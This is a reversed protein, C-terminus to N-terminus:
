VFEVGWECEFLGKAPLSQIGTKEELVGSTNVFDAIGYWPEICIFPGPKSWIGLFPYGKFHFKFVEGKDKHKLSIFDSQYNKFVLADNKFLDYSLPIKKENNLYPVTENSILGEKLVYLNLTEPKNFELYYDEYQENEELPCAFGPHAGVSFYLISDQHNIVKYGVKLTRGTLLYSIQLEFKYPYKKLTEENYVLSFVIRDKALEKVTFPMDRAFGHQPLSYNTGHSQYSNDKLRGVIPFLVPSKRGWIAPEGKWLFEKGSVKDQISSLEAGVESISVSLASNSILSM